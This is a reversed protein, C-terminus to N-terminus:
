AKIKGFNFFRAMWSDLSFIQWSNIDRLIQTARFKKVLITVEMSHFKVHIKRKSFRYKKGTAVLRKETQIMVTKLLPWLSKRLIPCTKRFQM